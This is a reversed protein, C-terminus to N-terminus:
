FFLPWSINLELERWQKTLFLYLMLFLLGLTFRSLVVLTEPVSVNRVFVGFTGIIVSAAIASFFGMFKANEYRGFFFRRSM